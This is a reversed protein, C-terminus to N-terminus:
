RLVDMRESDLRLFIFLLITFGIISSGGYSFFPLPIGVVPVVGIVMGINILFHFFLICATCYGFIRTYQSRQREAIMIIRILMTIYLVIFLVSGILGWEEGWGCFIFDTSQEPVQNFQDNSLTANRYGKGVIGGSAIAAMSQAQNYGVGTKDDILGLIVDFRDRHRDSFVHEHVLKTSLSVVVTIVLVYIARVVQTKRQRKRVTKRIVFISVAFLMCAFAVLIWPGQLLGWFLVSDRIFITMVTIVAVLLGLLLIIGSMGERYMVLLFSVFVLVTGPDPQLTILVAPMMLLSVAYFRTKNDTLKRNPSSLLKAFALTTAFKAFESPQLSFGGLKFWSHAGKVAPTFLVAILLLIIFGYIHYSYNIFFKGDILLIIMGVVISIGIYLVQKGYEKELSFLSPVDATYASSYITLLGLLVFAAYILLMLNDIRKPFIDLRGSTRM